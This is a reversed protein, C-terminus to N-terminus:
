QPPEPYPNTARVIFPAACKASEGLASNTENYMLTYMGFPSIGPQQNVNYARAAEFKLKTWGYDDTGYRAFFLYWGIYGNEFEVLRLMQHDDLTSFLIEGYQFSGNVNKELPVAEDEGDFNSSVFCNPFHLWITNPFEDWNIRVPKNDITIIGSANKLYRYSM